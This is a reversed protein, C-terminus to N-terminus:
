AYDRADFNVAETQLVLNEGKGLFVFDREGGRDKAFTDDWFLMREIDAEVFARHPPSLDRLEDFLAVAHHKEAREHGIEVEADESSIEIGGAADIDGALLKADTVM